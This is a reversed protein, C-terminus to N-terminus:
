VYFVSFVSWRSVEILPVGIVALLDLVMAEVVGLNASTSAIETSHKLSDFLSWHSLLPLM